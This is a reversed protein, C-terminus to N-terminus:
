GFSAIKLIETEGEYDWGVAKKAQDTQDRLDCIMQLNSLPVFPWNFVKPKFFVHRVEAVPEYLNIRISFDYRGVTISRINELPTIQDAEPKGFYLFRDDYGIANLRKLDKMVFFPALICIPLIYLSFYDSRIWAIILLSFGFIVMFWMFFLLSKKQTKLRKPSIIHKM